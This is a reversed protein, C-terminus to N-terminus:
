IYSYINYLMFYTKYIQVNIERCIYKLDVLPISSTYHFSYHAPFNSQASVSTTFRHHLFISTFHYLFYTSRIKLLNVPNESLRTFIFRTESMPFSILGGYTRYISTTRSNSCIYTEGMRSTTPPIHDVDSKTSINANRSKELM